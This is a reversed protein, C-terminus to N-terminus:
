HAAPNAAPCDIRDPGMAVDDMWMDIPAPTAQYNIWGLHVANFTPATWTSKTGDVCGQGTSVVMAQLQGDIYFDITNKGGDYLWQWCVWKDQPLMPMIHDYCDHPQYNLLIGGMGGIRYQGTGQGDAQINDYHVAAPPLGTMYVMMRGWFSNATAPFLPAGTRTIQAAKNAGADAHILVSQRGSYVHTGDTKVMGGTTSTTWPTLNTPAAYSEFDDCIKATGCLASAGGVAMGAGGQGSAGGTNGSAGGIARGGSGAVPGGGASVGTGGIQGGAAGGTPAAGGTAFTGGTSAVTGGTAIAGGSGPNGIGGSATTTAGGTGAPSSPSSGTSSGSCGAVLAVLLFRGRILRLSNPNMM